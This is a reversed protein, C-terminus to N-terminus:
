LRAGNGIMIDDFGDGNASSVSDGVADVRDEGAFVVGSIGNLDSLDIIGDCAVANASDLSALNGAGGFIM